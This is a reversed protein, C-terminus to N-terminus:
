HKRAPELDNLRYGLYRETIIYRPHSPDVELKVRLRRIVGKVYDDADVYQSGWVKTLLMRTTMVRGMNQALQELVAYEIPSLTVSNGSVSVYHQEADIVIEGCIIHSQSVVVSSGRRLVARVRALLEALRFPKVLYDDAGLDLATVIDAESGKISLIIIPTAAVARVQRCFELGDMRPMTLDLLILDPQEHRFLELAEVGDGATKIIYQYPLLAHKTAALIGPDDDVVM